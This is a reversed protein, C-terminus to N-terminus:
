EDDDEGPWQLITDSVSQRNILEIMQQADVLIQNRKAVGESRRCIEELLNRVEHGLPEEPDLFSPDVLRYRLLGGITKICISMLRSYREGDIMMRIAPIALNVFDGALGETLSYPAKERLSLVYFLARAHYDMLRGRGTAYSHVLGFLAKLEEPTEFARGMAQFDNQATVIVNNVAAERLIDRIYAPCRTFAWTAFTVIQNREMQVVGPAQLRRAVIELLEDFATLVDETLGDTLDPLKGDSSVARSKTTERRRADGWRRTLLSPSQFRTLLKRAQAVDNLNVPEDASTEGNLRHILEALSFDQQRETRPKFTWLFAHCPHPQVPPVFVQVERELAAVIDEETQGVLIEMLDWNVALRNMRVTPAASEIGLAAQGQAPTQQVSMRIPTNETMAFPLDQSAHRPTPTGERLLYFEVQRAGQPITVGLDITRAYAQGGECVADDPILDVFVAQDDRRVALRLQPLHDYYTVRGSLRRHGYEVCGIPVLHSESGKFTLTQRSPRRDRLVSRLHYMLSLNGTSVAIAPGEIIMLDVDAIFADIDDLMTSPVNLPQLWDPSAGPYRVWNAESQFFGDRDEMKLLWRLPLGDGWLIQGPEVSIQEGLIRAVNGALDTITRTFPFFVGPRTRKPIVYPPAGKPREVAAVLRNVSIGDELCSLVAIERDELRNLFPILESALGLVAAVSRWLLQVDLGAIRAANLIRQRVDEDFRGDDPIAVALRAEGELNSRTGMLASVAATFMEEPTTTSGHFALTDDGRLRKLIDILPIRTQATNVSSARAEAPWAWGRGVFSLTAEAGAIVESSKESAADIVIVSPVAGGVVKEADLDFAAVDQLGNIDIGVPVTGSL